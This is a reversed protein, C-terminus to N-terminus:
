LSWGIKIAPILNYIRIKPHQQYDLQFLIKIFCELKLCEM